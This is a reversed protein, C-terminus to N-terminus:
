RAEVGEFMKLIRPMVVCFTVTMIGLSSRDFSPWRPAFAAV